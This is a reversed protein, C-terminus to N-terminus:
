RDIKRQTMESFIAHRLIRVEKLQAELRWRDPPWWTEAIQRQLAHVEGMLRSGNTELVEDPLPSLDM